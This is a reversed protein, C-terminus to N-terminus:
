MIGCCTIWAKESTDPAADEDDSGKAEPDVGIVTEDDPQAQAADPSLLPERASDIQEELSEANKIRREFYKFLCLFVTLAALAGLSIEILLWPPGNKLDLACLSNTANYLCNYELDELALQSFGYVSCNPDDEPAHFLMPGKTQNGSAQEISNVRPCDQLAEQLKSTDCSGCNAIRVTGLFTDSSHNSPDERFTMNLILVNICGMLPDPIHCGELELMLLFCCGLRLAETLQRFHRPALM